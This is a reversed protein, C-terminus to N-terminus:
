LLSLRREFGLVAFQLAAQLHRFRRQLSSPPLMVLYPQTLMPWNRYM